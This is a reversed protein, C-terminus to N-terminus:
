KPGRGVGYTREWEALEEAYIDNVCRLCGSGCCDSALPPEPRPPTSISPAVGDPDATSPEPDTGCQM